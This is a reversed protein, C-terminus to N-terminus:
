AFVHTLRQIHQARKFYGAINSERKEQLGSKMDRNTKRSFASSSAEKWSYFKMHFILFM